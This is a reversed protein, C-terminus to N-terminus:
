FRCCRVKLLISLASRTTVSSPVFLRRRDIDTAMHDIRGRVDDLPIKAEIRLFADNSQASAGEAGAITTGILGLAALLACWVLTVVVARARLAYPDAIM